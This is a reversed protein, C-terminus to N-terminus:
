NAVATLVEHEKAAPLQGIWSHVVRGDRGVLLLTPTSEVKLKSQESSLVADPDVGNAQLYEQNVAIEETSVAVIRTGAARAAPALKRYFPMSATCYHCHSSTMM